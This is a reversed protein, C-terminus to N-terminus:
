LFAPRSLSCGQHPGKEQLFYKSLNGYNTTCLEFNKYVLKIWSIYCEGFNFKCLISYLVDHSISDFFKEFDLNLLLAPINEKELYLLLDILKRINMGIFRGPVYGTQQPSIHEKLQLKMHNTIMKTISKCDISLLTLPCWHKIYFPDKNKKPILSIVGRRASRLLIGEKHCHLVVEWLIKGLKVFFMKYFENSLGNLGPVKGSVM